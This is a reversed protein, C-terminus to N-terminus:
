REAFEVRVCPVIDCPWHDPVTIELAEAHQAFGLPPKDRWKGTVLSVSTVSGSGHTSASGLAAVRFTPGIPKVLAFVYVVKTTVGDSVTERSTIRFGASTFPVRRADGFPGAAVPTPGEGFTHWPRTGYIGEGNVLLWDGIAELIARDEEPITGDARPGINLLLAGNKSVIDVLDQILSGPTKYTRDATYGWTNTAVATDTQWFDARAVDSQGREIDLVASGTEFARHKYNIAVDRRWHKARNYYYSAFLQLYPEFVPQEIWWDFWVLQPRIRDVLECCRLLWDELFQDNPQLHESQAPGYFEAFAPNQVDSPIRMGGNMFWWHEARHSSVGYVMHQARVAQGLDGILDRRPGMRAANWRSLQTDYLAFGDHHEATPVVFQAGARRFLAAWANPDFHAATFAPIFDKYGFVQQDGYTERHHLFAPTGEVYMNRPYWENGFAPVAYVGWHIFIGFKGDIYWDPVRRASLSQWEPLFPGGEAVREIEDRYEQLSPKAV